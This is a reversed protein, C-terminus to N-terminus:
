DTDLTHYIMAIEEGVDSWTRIPSSNRPPLLREAKLLAEAWASPNLTEIYEAYLGLIEHHIPIDSAIVPTGCASAELAPLDFGEYLSPSLFAKAHRYLAPLHEDPVFGISRIGEQNFIATDQMWGFRGCLVLQTKLGKQRARHFASILTFLNKRPEQTGVFLFFPKQIRHQLLIDNDGMAEDPHFSLHQIGLHVPVVKRYQHPLDLIEQMVTYSDTMVIDALRMSKKMAWRYYWRRMWPITDPFKLFALDHITVVNKCRVPFIVPSIFAPSHLIDPKIRHLLRPLCIQEWAIRHAASRIPISYFRVNDEDTWEKPISFDSPIIVSFRFLSQRPHFLGHILGWAYRGTGSRNTISLANIAVHM